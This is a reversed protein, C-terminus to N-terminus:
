PQGQVWTHELCERLQMRARYLLVGCYNATINLDRCIDETAMEMTERMMFVRALRAPLREVCAQLRQVLQQQELESQPTPWQLPNDRWHHNAGFLADIAEDYSQEDIPEIPVERGRKRLTDIIKHKLIGTAYTRLSSAGAFAAPKELMALMTESVVDEALADSRLQMQAFRLLPTRLAGVEQEFSV